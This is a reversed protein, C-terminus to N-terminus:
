HIKFPKTLHVLLGGRPSKFYNVKDFCINMIKTGIGSHGSPPYIERKFSYFDPIDTFVKDHIGQRFKLIYPVFEKKIEGGEDGVLFELIEKSLSNALFIEKSNDYNNGHEYANKVAECVGPVTGKIYEEDAGERSLLESFSKSLKSLNLGGDPFFSQINFRFPIEVEPVNSKSLFINQSFATRVLSSENDLNMLELYTNM